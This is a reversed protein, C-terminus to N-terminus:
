SAAYRDKAYKIYDNFYKGKADANKTNIVATADPMGGMAEIVSLLASKGSVSKSIAKLLSDQANGGTKWYVWLHPLHVEAYIEMHESVDIRVNSGKWTAVKLIPKKAKSRNSEKFLSMNHGLKVDEEYMEAFEYGKKKAYAAITRAEAEKDDVPKFIDSSKVAEYIRNM